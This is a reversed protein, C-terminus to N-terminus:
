PRAGRGQEQHFRSCQHDHCGRHHRQRKPEARATIGGKESPEFFSAGGTPRAWGRPDSPMGNVANGHRDKGDALSERIEKAVSASNADLNGDLAQAFREALAFGADDDFLFSSASFWRYSALGYRVRDDAGRNARVIESLQGSLFRARYERWTSDPDSTCFTIYGDPELDNGNVDVLRGASIEDYM